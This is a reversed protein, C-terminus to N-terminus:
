GIALTLSAISGAMRFDLTALSTEPRVEAAM